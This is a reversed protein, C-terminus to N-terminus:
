ELRQYEKVLMLQNTESIKFILVTGDNEFQGKYDKVYTTQNFSFNIINKEFTYNEKKVNACSSNEECAKLYQIAKKPKRKSDELIFVLGMETFMLYDKTRDENEVYFIGQITNTKKVKIIHQANAAFAM